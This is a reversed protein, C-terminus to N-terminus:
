SKKEEKKTCESKKACEAKKEKCCCEKGDKGCKCAEGCCCNGAKEKCEGKSDGAQAVSVALVGAFALALLFRLSKM